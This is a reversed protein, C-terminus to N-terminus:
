SRLSSRRLGRDGAPRFRNLGWALLPIWALPSVALSVVWLAGGSSASGPGSFLVMPLFPPFLVFIWLFEFVQQSGFGSRLAEPLFPILSAFGAIIWWLVVALLWRGVGPRKALWSRFRNLICALFPVFVLPMWFLFLAILWGDPRKWFDARLLVASASWVPRIFGESWSLTTWERAAGALLVTALYWILFAPLVDKWASRLCFRRMPSIGM